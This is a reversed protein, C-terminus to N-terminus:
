SSVAAGAMTVSNHTTSNVPMLMCVCMYIFFLCAVIYIHIYIHIHTYHYLSHTAPLNFFAFPALNSLASSSSLAPLFALAISLLHHLFPSTHAHNFPHPHSPHHLKILCASLLLFCSHHPSLNIGVGGPM